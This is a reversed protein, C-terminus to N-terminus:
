HSKPVPVWRDRCFTPLKLWLLICYTVGLGSLNAVIDVASPWRNPVWYQMLEVIVAHGVLYYGYKRHIGFQTQSPTSLKYLFYLTAYAAFHLSFSPISASTDVPPSAAIREGLFVWPNSLLLEITLGSWYLRFAYLRFKVRSFNM